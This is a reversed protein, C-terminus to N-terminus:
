CGPFIRTMREHLADLIREAMVIFELTDEKSLRRHPWSEMVTTFGNSQWPQFSYSAGDSHAYVENRLALIRDHLAKEENTWNILRSPLGPLSRATSFPRSYSVVLSTTFASQQLYTSGRREWEFSHWGKKILFRACQLAHAIDMWSIRLKDYQRKQHPDLEIQM